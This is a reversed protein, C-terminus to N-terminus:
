ANQVLNLHVDQFRTRYLEIVAIRQEPTMARSEDLSSAFLNPCFSFVRLFIILKRPLM